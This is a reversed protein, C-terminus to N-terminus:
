RGVAAVGELYYAPARTEEAALGVARGPVERVRHPPVRHRDRGVAVDDQAEQGVVRAHPRKVAVDGPV